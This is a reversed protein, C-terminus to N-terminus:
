AKKRAPAKKAATKKAPAKKAPTTRTETAQAPRTHTRKAAAPAFGAALYHAIAKLTNNVPDAGTNNLHHEALKLHEDRTTM